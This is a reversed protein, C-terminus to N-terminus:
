PLPNQQTSLDLIRTLLSDVGVAKWALRSGDGGSARYFVAGWPELTVSTEFTGPLSLEAIGQLGSMVFEEGDRDLYSAQLDLDPFRYAEPLNPEGNLAVAQAFDIFLAAFPLEVVSAINDRGTSASTAIQLIAEPGFRDHLYRSLLYGAGYDGLTGRFEFFARNLGQELLDSVAALLFYNGGQSGTFGFGSLDENLCALGEDITINEAVADPPFTGDRGQKQNWLILHTFEHSITSLADYLDANTRDANIYLIEGLNSTAVQETSLEDQSRFFGFYGEGGIGSSSLFVLVVRPDGDRGGLPNSNWESGFRQRTSAYIGDDGEIFPNDRDFAQAVELAKAESLVPTGDVVEAFILCHETQSDSLIRACETQRFTTAIYFSATQGPALSAYDARPPAPTPSTQPRVAAAEQSALWATACRPALATAARGLTSAPSDVNVEGGGGEASLTVSAAPFSDIGPAYVASLLASGNPGFSPLESDSQPFPDGPLGPLYPGAIFENVQNARVEIKGVSHAITTNDGNQAQVFVAWRGEEVDDFVVSSGQVISKGEILDLGPQDAYLDVRYAAALPVEGVQVDVTGQPAECGMLGFLILLLPLWRAAPAWRQSLKRCGNDMGSAECRGLANRSAATALAFAKREM